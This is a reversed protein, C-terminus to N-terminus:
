RRKIHLFDDPDVETIQYGAEVAKVTLEKATYYYLRLGLLEAFLGQRFENQTARGSKKIPYLTLTKISAKKIRQAYMKAQNIVPIRSAELQSGVTPPRYVRGM